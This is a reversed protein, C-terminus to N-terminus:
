CGDPTRLDGWHIELFDILEEETREPMLDVSLTVSEGIGLNYAAKRSLQLIPPGSM